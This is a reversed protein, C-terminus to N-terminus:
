EGRPALTATVVGDTGAISCPFERGDNLRLVLDTRNEISRLQADSELTVTADFGGPGEIRANGASIYQERLKVAYEVPASGDAWVLEGRGHLNETARVRGLSPKRPM